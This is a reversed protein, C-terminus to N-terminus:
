PVALPIKPNYLADMWPGTRIPPCITRIIIIIPRHNRHGTRRPLLTAVLHPAPRRTENTPIGNGGDEPPLSIRRRRPPPPPRHHPPHFPCPPPPPHVVTTTWCCIPMIRLSGHCRVVVVVVVARVLVVPRQNPRRRSHQFPRVGCWHEVRPPLPFTPIMMMM